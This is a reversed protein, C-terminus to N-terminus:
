SMDVCRSQFYGRHFKLQKGQLLDALQKSLEVVLTEKFCYKEFQPGHVVQM